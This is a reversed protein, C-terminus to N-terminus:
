QTPENGRAGRVVYRNTFDVVAALAFRQQVAIKTLKEIDRLRARREGILDDGGRPVHVERRRNAVCPKIPENDRAVPHALLSIFPIPAATIDLGGKPEHAIALAM